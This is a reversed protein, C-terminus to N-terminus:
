SDRRREEIRSLVDLPTASRGRSMAPLRVDGAAIQELATLAEGTWRDIARVWEDASFGNDVGVGRYVVKPRCLYTLLLSTVPEPQAMAYLVLQYDNPAGDKKLVSAPSGSKYDVIGLGGDERVDVRDARMRLQLGHRELELRAEVGHVRYAGRGQEAAVFDELIQRSRSQEIALLRRLVADARAFHLAYGHQTAQAIRASIEDGTWAVIEAHAPLDKFLQQTSAHLLTGRLRPPLGGEFPQLEAVGLRGTAFAAFPEAFQLNVTRSGGHLQESHRVSPAEDDSIVELGVAGVVAASGWGPDDENSAITAPIEHLLPSPAQLHDAAHTAWTMRVDPAAGALRRLVRRGYDLTDAPAADPMAHRQQLQRSVLSLPKNAPPWQAAEMGAVWLHDFEFGAAELFGMLHLPEGGSESQFVTDQAARRLRVVADGFTCKPLVSQTASFENLLERWRNSVQYEASAQSHEGPWGVTRLLEDITAAWDVPAREEEGTAALRAMTQFRRELLAESAVHGSNQKFLECLAAASWRRDPFRRLNLDNRTAVAAANGQLYPTRLLVSVESSSLGEHAGKLVLLAVTMMPYAALPRGLSVNLAARYDSQRLQWGPAFGEVVFRRYREAHVHLDSVVIAVRADPSASLRKRAWQGAARLEAERDAYPQHSVMSARRGSEIMRVDSGRSRLSRLVQEVVPPVRDFGAVNTSTPISRSHALAVACPHGISARDLWGADALTQRYRVAALAFVQEERGVAARAVDDLAVSWDHIRQWASRAMSLLGVAGESSDPLAAQLCQEWILRETADDIVLASAGGDAGAVIRECWDRWHFIAPTSWARQGAAYCRAGYAERLERALRRSSTLTLAGSDGASGLWRYRGSDPENPVDQM